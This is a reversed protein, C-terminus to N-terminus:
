KSRINANIERAFKMIRFVAAERDGSLLWLANTLELPKRMDGWFALEGHQHQTRHCNFCLPLTSGDHPKMGMGGSGSGKRVHAAQSPEDSKLCVCCPLERIFRLHKNDRVPKNKPILMDSLCLIKTM